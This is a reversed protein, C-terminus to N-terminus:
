CLHEGNSLLNKKHEQQQLLSLFNRREQIKWDQLSSLEREQAYKNYSERLNDRIDHVNQTMEEEAV